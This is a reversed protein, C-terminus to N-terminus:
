EEKASENGENVIENEEQGASDELEKKKGRIMYFGGVIIAAGVVMQPVSYGINRLVRVIYDPLYSYCIDTFGNWLLLAGMIILVAAFGKRYKQVKGKEMEFVTDVHFLYEDKVGAFQEESLGALNHVHFFSYFWVVITVFIIPGINLMAALCILAWFLGMLSLGMKMFGMYMEGAGPLFSCCFTIFGNKKRTM